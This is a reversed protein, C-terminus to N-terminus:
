STSTPVSALGSLWEAVVDGVLALPSAIASPEDFRESLSVVALGREAAARAGPPSVRGAVCLTPRGGARTLVEGVVKGLFSQEDLCGEGTVIADAASLSDDLRVLSAVLEFGSVLKGGIAALGGALGGAAGSGEVSRVDLGFEAAYRDALARLRRELVRVQAPSAGKQPGFRGAAELFRVRVDCAVVIEVGALQARDGLVELAGAGGDTTASGGCGVVLRRGGARVAAVMLEGVGRTTAAVADNRERGGALVLGAAQSMEIVATPVGSSDLPTEDFRWSAAVKNGLPGTVVTERNPGGVVGLLGEGGDSMPRQASEWGSALAGAAMAAALHSATATGKFKDPAALLVPV